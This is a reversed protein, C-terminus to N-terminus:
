VIVLAGFSGSFLYGKEGAGLVGLARLLSYILNSTLFTFIHVFIILIVM